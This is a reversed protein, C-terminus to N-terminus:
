EWIHRVPGDSQGQLGVENDGNEWIDFVPKGKLISYLGM